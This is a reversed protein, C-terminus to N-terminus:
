GIDKQQRVGGRGRPPKGAGVSPDPLLLIDFGEVDGHPSELLCYSAIIKNQSTCTDSLLSREEFLRWSRRLCAETGLPFALNRVRFTRTM